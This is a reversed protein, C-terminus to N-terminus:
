RTISRLWSPMRGLEHNAGFEKVILGRLAAGHGCRGQGHGHVHAFRRKLERLIPEADYWKVGRVGGM